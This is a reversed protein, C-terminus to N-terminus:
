AAELGNLTAIGVPDDSLCGIRTRINVPLFCPCQRYHLMAEVRLAMAAFLGDEQFPTLAAFVVRAELVVNPMRLTPTVVTGVNFVALAPIPSFPMLLLTVVDVSAAAAPIGVFAGGGPLLIYQLNIGVIITGCRRSHRLTSQMACATTGFLQHM